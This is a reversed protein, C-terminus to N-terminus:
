GIQRFSLLGLGIFFAPSNHMHLRLLGDDIDFSLAEVLSGIVINPVGLCSQM